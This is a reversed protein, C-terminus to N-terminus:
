RIFTCDFTGANVSIKNGKNNTMTVQYSGVFNEPYKGLSDSVVKSFNVSGSIVSSDSTTTYLEDAKAGLSYSAQIQPTGIGYFNASFKGKFILTFVQFPNSQTFVSIKYVPKPISDKTYTKELYLKDGWLDFPSNNTPTGTVRGYNTSVVVTDAEKKCSIFVSLLCVALFVKYM